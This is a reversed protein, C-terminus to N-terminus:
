YLGLMRGALALVAIVLAIRILREGGVLTWRVAVAGGASFGMTLWLAPFWAVQGQFIFIPVAIATLLGIVIVKISNVVVLDYGSRALALMLILGVGAQIAGGYLGILFFILTRTGPSWSPRSVTNKRASRLTPILLILMAIGFIREFEQGRLQSIGLAGLAAGIGIPLLLPWTYSWSSFGAKKFRWTAVASQFVIGIRNTGNAVDGPLGLAM